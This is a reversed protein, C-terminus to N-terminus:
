SNEREYDEDARKTLIIRSFQKSQRVRIKRKKILELMAVFTVVIVLRPEGQVMKLFDIKGDREIVELIERQKMEPTVNMLEVEHASEQPVNKLVDQLATLLDFLEYDPETKREAIFKEIRNKEGGRPFVGRRANEKEALKEAVGGLKEYEILYRILTSRPDDEEFEGTDSGPSIFLSRSKIKMLTAALVIFDGAMELNILKILEVYELYEGAIESLSIEHIDLEKKKILYLLLDIPGEFVSLKIQYDDDPLFSVM